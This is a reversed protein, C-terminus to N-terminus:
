PLTVSGPSASLCLSLASVDFHGAAMLCGRLASRPLPRRKDEM